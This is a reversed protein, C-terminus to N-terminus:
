HKRHKNLVHGWTGPAYDDTESDDPPTLDRNHTAWALYQWAECGHDNRKLPQDPANDDEDVAQKWVYGPLEEITQTPRGMQVMRDDPPHSRAGDLFYALPKGDQQMELLSHTHMIQAFKKRGAQGTHKDASILLPEGERNAIKDNVKWIGAANEPDSVGRWLDYKEHLEMIQDSWWDDDRRSMYIEEVMYMRGERDFGWVQFVGPNEFGWDQGGAFWTLETKSGGTNLTWTRGNRVLEGKLVHVGLSFNDYVTGEAQCWEAYKLRRRVVGSMRDLSELFAEGLELPTGDETFYAPNHVHYPKMAVRGPGWIVDKDQALDFRKYLWHMPSDPNCEIFAFHAPIGHPWRLARFIKEYATKSIETGEIFVAINAEFSYWKEPTDMGGLLIESTGGDRCPITYSHRHLRTGNGPSIGFAPLVHEEMTVQATERLSKLTQRFLVIRTRPWESALQVFQALDGVTKGTGAASHFLIERIPKGGSTQFPLWGLHKMPGRLTLPIPEAVTM